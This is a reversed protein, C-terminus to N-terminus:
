THRVDMTLMTSYLISSADPYSKRNTRRCGRKHNWGNPYQSMWSLCSVRKWCVVALSSQVEVARTISWLLGRRYIAHWDRFVREPWLRPRQQPRQTPNMRQFSQPQDMLVSPNKLHSLRMYLRLVRLGWYRSHRTFQRSWLSGTRSTKVTRIGNRGPIFEGVLAVDVNLM